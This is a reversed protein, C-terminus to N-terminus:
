AAGNDDHCADLPKDMGGHWLSSIYQHVLSDTHPFLCQVRSLDL